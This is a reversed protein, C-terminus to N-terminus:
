LSLRKLMVVSDSYDGPGYAEAQEARTLPVATFGAKAYARIARPNRRSPRIIFEVINRAPDAVEYNVHGVAESGIEIIYSRETEEKTGDFFRPGYDECFEDWTPPPADPFIPLGLMSSTVDSEALWQYVARRDPEEAPRLTVVPLRKALLVVDVYKGDVVVAGERRGEHEFGLREYLRVVDPNNAFAEIEIRHVG